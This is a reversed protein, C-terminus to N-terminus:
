SRLRPSWTSSNGDKTPPPGILAMAEFKGLLERSRIVGVFVNTAASNVCNPPELATLFSEFDM